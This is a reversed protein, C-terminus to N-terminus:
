RILTIQNVPMTAVSTPPTVTLGGSLELYHAVVSSNVFASNHGGFHINGAPDYVDGNTLSTAGDFSMTSLDNSCSGSAPPVTATTLASVPMAALIWRAGSSIGNGSVTTAGAFTMNGFSVVAGAMSLSGLSSHFRVNGDVAFQGNVTCASATSCAAPTFYGGSGTKYVWGNQAANAQTIETYGQKLLDGLTWIPPTIPPAFFPTPTASSGSQSATTIWTGPGGMAQSSSVIINNSHVWVPNASSANSSNGKIKLAIGSTSAGSPALHCGQFLTYDFQSNASAAGLARVTFTNIGFVGAFGGDVTQQATVVVSLPLINAGPHSADYASGMQVVVNSSSADDLAVINRAQSFSTSPNYMYEQAGARAGADVANQLDTKAFYVTGITVGAAAMGLLVTMGLVVIVLSQGSQARTPIRWNMTQIDALKTSITRIWQMLFRTARLPSGREARKGGTIWQAFPRKM